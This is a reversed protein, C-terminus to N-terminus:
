IYLEVDTARYICGQRHTYVYACMEYLYRHTYVYVCVECMYIHIDVYASVM